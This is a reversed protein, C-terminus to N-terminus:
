ETKGVVLINYTEENFDSFFNFRAPAYHQDIMSYVKPGTIAGVTKPLIASPFQNIEKRVSETMAYSFYNLLCGDGEMQFSAWIGSFIYNAVHESNRLCLSYNSMGLMQVMREKIELTVNKKKLVEFTGHPLTNSQVRFASYFERPNRELCIFELFHAGKTDTIFFHQYSCGGVCVNQKALQIESNAPFYLDIVSLNTERTTEDFVLSHRSWSTREQASYSFSAGMNVLSRTVVSLLQGLFTLKRIFYFRQSPHHSVTYCYRM